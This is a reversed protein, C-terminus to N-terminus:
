VQKPSQILEVIKNNHQMKVVTIQVRYISYLLALILDASESMYNRESVNSIIDNVLDRNNSTLENYFMQNMIAEEKIDHCRILASIRM